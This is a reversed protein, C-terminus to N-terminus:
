LIQASNNQDKYRWAFGVCKRGKRMSARIASPTTGFSIAAQSISEAEWGVDNVVPRGVSKRKRAKARRASRIRKETESLEGWKMAVGDMVNLITGLPRFFMIWHHERDILAEKKAVELSYIIPVLGEMELDHVWACVPRIGNEPRRSDSLHACLRTRLRNCTQGIYKPVRPNRPDSLAYIQGWGKPILHKQYTRM